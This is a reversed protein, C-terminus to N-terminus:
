ACSCTIRWSSAAVWSVNYTLVSITGCVYQVVLDTCLDSIAASVFFSVKGTRISFCAHVCRGDTVRLASNDPWALAFAEHGTGSIPKVPARNDNVDVMNDKVIDGKYISNKFQCKGLLLKPKQRTGWLIGHLRNSYAQLCDCEEQYMVEPDPDLKSVPVPVNQGKAEFCSTNDRVLSNVILVDADQDLKLGSKFNHLIESKDIKLV